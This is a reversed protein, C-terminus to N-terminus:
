IKMPEAGFEGVMGMISKARALDFDKKMRRAARDTESEIAFDEDSQVWATSGSVTRAELNKLVLWAAQLSGLVGVSVLLTELTMHTPKKTQQSLGIPLKVRVTLLLYPIIQM